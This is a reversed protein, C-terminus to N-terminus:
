RKEYTLIMSVLFMLASFILMFGLVTATARLQESGGGSLLVEVRWFFARYSLCFSFGWAGCLLGFSHGGRLYITSSILLLSVAIYDVILMPLFQGFRLHWWTEGLFHLIAAIASLWAFRRSIVARRASAHDPATPTSINAAKITPGHTM